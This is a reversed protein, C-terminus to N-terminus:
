QADIGGGHYSFGTLYKPRLKGDREAWTIRLQPHKPCSLLVDGAKPQIGPAPPTYIYDDGLPCKFMAANIDAHNYPWGNVGADQTLIWRQITPLDSAFVGSHEKAYWPLVLSVDTLHEKCTEELFVEDSRNALANISDTNYLVNNTSFGVLPYNFPLGAFIEAAAGYAARSEAVKGKFEAVKAVAFQFVAEQIAATAADVQQQEAATLLSDAKNGGLNAIVGAGDPSVTKISNDSVNFIIDGTLAWASLWGADRLICKPASGDAPSVYLDFAYDFAKGAYKNRTVTYLLRSGDPSWHPRIARMNQPSVLQPTGGALNMIYIRGVDSMWSHDGYDAQYDNVFAIKTGDPSFAAREGQVGLDTIAKSNVNVLILKYDANSSHRQSVALTVGDPSWAPQEWGGDIVKTLQGSRLDCVWIGSEWDTM